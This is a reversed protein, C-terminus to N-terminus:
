IQLGLPGDAVYALNGVVRVDIATGGPMALTGVLQPHARDAVDVVLLGGNGFAIYAHDGAVDVNNAYGNGPLQLFSLRQPTFSRVRVSVSASFTTNPISVTVTATGDSGAFIQGDTGGFNVVNLDSSAYNTGRSTSTLDLTRGDTLHGTVQLQRSAEGVLANVVLVVVSPKVEISQLASGLNFSNADLPNSGTAVELGDGLGDGDTDFVLPNTGYKNVEDGDILGDGDTDAKRIDTGYVMLEEFNTLGDHDFDELADVPDNPNLGNAIEVDDPIGDGDTDGTLVVSLRLLGSAGDNLATIIAIGGARATVLGDDSVSVIAPNSSTYNTGRLAQTVDLTAGGPYTARTALQATAGVSHFTADAVTVDLRSPVPSADDFLIDPVKTAGNRTITFYDSQGSRTVGNDVCTARVRVRGINSPVNPLVWSGDAQVKASRNLVSVICHENLTAGRAPGALGLAAAAVAAAAAMRRWGRGGANARAWFAM